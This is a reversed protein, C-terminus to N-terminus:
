EKNKWEKFADYAKATNWSAPVKAFAEWTQYRKCYIDEDPIEAMISCTAKHKRIDALIEPERARVWGSFRM